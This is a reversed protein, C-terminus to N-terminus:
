STPDLNQLQGPTEAEQRLALAEAAIIRTIASGKALALRDMLDVLIAAEQQSREMRAVLYGIVKPDVKIQRDGFLKVFIHSLEIDDSSELRFIPARRIRSLVDATKFPWDQPETRATLLLARQGRMAQNLVHFLDHEDFGARDVDEVILNEGGTGGAFRGLTEPGTVIAQSRDAFIRALHSKGSAAPGLLVTTADSWDPWATIRGYALVNGEGVLFDDEGHSPEHGLDLPLQRASSTLPSM